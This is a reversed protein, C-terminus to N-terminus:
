RTSGHITGSGLTQTGFVAVGRLVEPIPYFCMMVADAMNPSRVGDPKKNILLKLRSGLSSTPQSLEKQLSRVYPLDSPLSILDDVAFEEGEVVAKYTRLFRQRLDYWGQAKLNQFFDKNKASEKDGENVRDEPNLVAAGANWPVFSIGAPLLKEGDLRNIESKVGAGIGVCDYQVAIPTYSAVDAITKRATAGTDRDGWESLSKIIPGKRVVLANRDLGEDAVDLGAGMLGGDWGKLYSLKIHADIAAAVWEGPIVVGEVSASYDRDVEQAFVHLLGDAAAKARRMNYWAQDKAPHDSWDMVFVNTIGKIAPSGTQWETGNERKRHFVNGLGHVSSIDIQVNTNDGLSAEISEPHEYWASEDKFYISKRGGRGISNGSEGTIASGTEPNVIRMYLMHESEVFGTPLFEPPLHRIYIRIKEFISDADGINDVLDAKRSGWGVQAGPWFLWLWVSIAVCLWTAGMDRSKEILGDAEHRVCSLIFRVFENQRKFTVFPLRVGSNHGIGARRPEFLFGFDNIFQLCHTSYFRKIAPWEKQKRLDSILKQRRQCESM